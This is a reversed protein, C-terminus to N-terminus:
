MVKPSVMAEGVAVAAQGAQMTRIVTGQVQSADCSLCTLMNLCSVPIPQLSPSHLQLQDAGSVVMCCFTLKCTKDNCNLQYLTCSSSMMVASDAAEISIELFGSTTLTESGGEGVSIANDAHRLPVLSCVADGKGPRTAACRFSLM